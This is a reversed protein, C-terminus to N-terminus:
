FHGAKYTKNLYGKGQDLSHQAKQCKEAVRKIFSFAVNIVNTRGIFGAAASQTSGRGVEGGGCGTALDFGRTRVGGEM